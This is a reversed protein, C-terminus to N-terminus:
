QNESKNEALPERKTLPIVMFNDSGNGEEVPRIIGMNLFFNVFHGLLFKLDNNTLLLRIYHDDDITSLLASILMQGPVCFFRLFYQLEAPHNERENTRVKLHKRLSLIKASQQPRGCELNNRSLLWTM